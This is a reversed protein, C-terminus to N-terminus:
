LCEVIRQVDPSVSGHFRRVRHRAEVAKGDGILGQVLLELAPEDSPDHHLLREAIDVAEGFRRLLLNMHAVRMGVRRRLTLLGPRIREFWPWNDYAHPLDADFAAFLDRLRTQVPPEPISASSVSRLLEDAEHIDVRVGEALRYGSENVIAGPEGLRRRLRHVTTRLAANAHARAVGPWLSELFVDRAAIQGCTVLAILLELERARLRCAVGDRTVCARFVEIRVAFNADGEYLYSASAGSHSM